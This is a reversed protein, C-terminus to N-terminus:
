KEDLPLYLAPDVNVGDKLVEFHLHTGDKYEEGTAEAVVAIQEGKEVEDGVKLGDAETVFRYVTKVGNGHDVTIETGLLLDDKYISEITGDEVALVATGAEATFDMGTHEYYSNLTQNHYFGYDNGLSVAEVPLIMGEPTTIVPEGSSDPKSSSSSSYSASSSHKPSNAGQDITGTNTVALAVVVIAILALACGAATCLYFRKEKNMTKWKTKLTKWEFKRKARPKKANNQVIETKKSETKNQENM